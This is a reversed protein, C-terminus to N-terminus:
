RQDLRTLGAHFAAERAMQLEEEYPRRNIDQYKQKKDTYGVQYDPRYQSMVNVYTDPSLENALWKFIESAEDTQGPMVLHRVLVGRKALGDSGFKLVGVQRHMEKIAERAKEPYDKAKAFQRASDKQWFKFDPMYIDVLGELLQLSSLADYASTNYVIPLHLGKPIASAIAEIVQPAVHEPTVFNINHCGRNQLALMMTAIEDANCEKGSKQQSIDWNQCFVCRLNCLGFFITGSGNWGRLCNEEGFHPFVSSVIAYRGTNCVRKEDQLRNVHCNRPCACCDELEKLALEVRDQLDGRRYAQLSAPEFDRLVFDPNSTTAQVNAFM